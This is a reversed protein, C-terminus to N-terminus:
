TISVVPLSANRSWIYDEKRRQKEALLAQSKRIPRALTPRSESNASQRTCVAKALRLLDRQNGGLNYPLYHITHRPGWVMFRGTSICYSPHQKNSSIIGKRKGNFKEVRIADIKRAHVIMQVSMELFSFLETAPYPIESM